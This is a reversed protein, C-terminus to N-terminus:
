QLSQRILAANTIAQELETQKDALAKKMKPIDKEQVYIVAQSVSVVIAGGAGTIFGLSKLAYGASAFGTKRDFGHVLQARHGLLAYLASTAAIGLAFTRTGKAFAVRTEQQRLQEQLDTIESRLQSLEEIQETIQDVVTKNDAAPNLNLNENAGENQIYTDSSRNNGEYQNNIAYAPTQALIATALLVSLGKKM